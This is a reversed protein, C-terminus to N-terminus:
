AFKVHVVVIDEMTIASEALLAEVTMLDTNELNSTSLVCLVVKM